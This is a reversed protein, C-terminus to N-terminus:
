RSNKVAPKAVADGPLLRGAEGGGVARLVDFNPISACLAGGAAGFLLQSFALPGVCEVYTGLETGSASFVVPGLHRAIPEVGPLKSADVYGATEPALTLAMALFPRFTGYAREFAGRLDLYGYAGSPQVVSRSATEFSPMSALGRQGARLRSLQFDAASASSSFCLFGETLGVVPTALTLGSSVPVTYIWANGRQERMWFGKGSSQESVSDLLGRVREHDRLDLALTLGPQNSEAPWDLLIGLEPGFVRGIDEPSVGWQGLAKRFDGLGRAWPHVSALASSPWHLSEGIQIASYLLTSDSSM